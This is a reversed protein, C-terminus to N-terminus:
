ALLEMSPVRSAAKKDFTAVSACGARVACHAILHDSIDGKPHMGLLASLHPEDEFVVEAAELLAAVVASVDERPYRYRRRLAWVLEAVVILSIFAPDDPTRARLFASAADFQQPHDRVIFRLLVNTDVAKM